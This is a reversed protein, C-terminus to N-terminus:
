VLQSELIELVDEVKQETSDGLENLKGIAAATAFDIIKQPEFENYVGYLLGAMFCDGSGIKDIVTNRLYKTSCYQDNKIHLTAYYEIGTQNHDFRFTNAVIKCDPYKIKIEEATKISHELYDELIAENVAIKSDINIGLLQNAAWINGMILDCYKALKPMIEVPKKGYQWLKARFNLDLSVKVNYKKAAELAELCLDAIEQNLAPSIASFHFWAVDKFVKQWNIQNLKLSSFASNARDYIVGANKLDAGQPLIYAGLKEGAFVINSTDINKSQLHEKIELSIINNPMATCYSVPVNWSALATAVNLEAGGIYTPISCQNIWAGGLKPSMRLLIEGFTLIKKM